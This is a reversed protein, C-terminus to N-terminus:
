RKEVLPIYRGGTGTPANYRYTKKQPFIKKNTKLIKKNTLFKFKM